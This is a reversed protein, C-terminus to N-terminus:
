IFSTHVDWIKFNMHVNMWADMQAYM